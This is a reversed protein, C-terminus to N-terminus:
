LRSPYLALALTIYMSLPCCAEHLSNQCPLALEHSGGHIDYM